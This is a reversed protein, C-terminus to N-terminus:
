GCTRMLPELKKAFQLVDTKPAELETKRHNVKSAVDGIHFVTSWRLGEQCLAVPMSKPNESTFGRNEEILVIQHIDTNGSHIM